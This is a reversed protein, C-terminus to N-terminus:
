FARVGKPIICPAVKDHFHKRYKVNEAALVKENVGEKEIEEDKESRNREVFDENFNKVVFFLNQNNAKEKQWRGSEKATRDM